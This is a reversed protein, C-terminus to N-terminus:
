VIGKEVIRELAKSCVSKFTNFLQANQDNRNYLEAFALSFFLADLAISTAKNAGTEYLRTYFPHDANIVVKFKEDRSCVIKWIEGKGLHASVIEYDKDTGYKLFENIKNSLWSGAPNDVEVISGADYGSLRTTIKNEGILM